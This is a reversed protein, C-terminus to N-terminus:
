LKRREKLDVNGVVGRDGREAGGVLFVLIGFRQEIKGDSWLYIVWFFM